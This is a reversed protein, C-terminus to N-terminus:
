WGPPLDIPRRTWWWRIERREALPQWSQSLEAGGDEWTVARYRADLQEVCRGIKTSLASPMAELFDEIGDRFTLVNLYGGVMYYDQGAWGDEMRAILIEWMRLCALVGYAPETAQFIREGNERALTQLDLLAIAQKDEPDLSRILRDTGEM